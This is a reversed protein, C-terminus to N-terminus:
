QKKYRKLYNSIIPSIFTVMLGMFVGIFVGFFLAEPLNRDVPTFYNILGGILGYSLFFIIFTKVKPRM